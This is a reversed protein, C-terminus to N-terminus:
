GLDLAGRKIEDLLVGWEGKSFGLVAGGPDKSDRAVIGPVTAAVEVCNTGEQASRSSKRWQVASFDRDSM